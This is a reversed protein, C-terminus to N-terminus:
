ASPGVPLEVPAAAVEEPPAAVVATGATSSDLSMSSADGPDAAAGADEEVADEAVPASTAERAGRLEIQSKM